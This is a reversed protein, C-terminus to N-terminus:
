RTTPEPFRQYTAPTTKCHRMPIWNGARLYHGLAVPIVAPTKFYLLGTSAPMHDAVTLIAAITSEFDELTPALERRPADPQGPPPPLAIVIVATADETLASRQVPGTFGAEGVPGNLNIALCMNQGALAALQEQLEPLAIDPTATFTKGTRTYLTIDMARPATRIAPTLRIALFHSNTGDRADAYLDIHRGAVNLWRGLHFGVQHRGQFLLGTATSQRRVQTLTRLVALLRSRLVPLDGPENVPILLSTLATFTNEGFRAFADAEDQYRDADGDTDTATVGIGAATRTTALLWAGGGSLALGAATFGTFYWWRLPQGNILADVLVAVAGSFVATGLSVLLAGLLRRTRERTAAKLKM